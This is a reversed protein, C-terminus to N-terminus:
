THIRRLATSSRRRKAKVHGVSVFHTGKLVLKIKPFFCFECVAIDPPYPPNQLVTINKNTTGNMALRPVSHIRTVSKAVRGSWGRYLAGTSVSYSSSHAGSTKSLFFTIEWVSIRVGSRRARSGRKFTISLSFYHRIFSTCKFIECKSAKAFNRLTITPEKMDLDEEALLLEAEVSLIKIFNPIQINKSFKNPFHKM